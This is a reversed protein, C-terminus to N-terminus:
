CMEVGQRLSVVMVNPNLSSKRVSLNITLGLFLTLIYFTDEDGIKKEDTIGKCGECILLCWCIFHVLFFNISDSIM